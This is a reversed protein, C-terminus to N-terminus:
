FIFEKKLKFCFVLLYFLINDFTQFIEKELLTNEIQEQEILLDKKLSKMAYIEKTPIYEVLSVKGFSGRGIVKIVKFDELKVQKVNKHSSYFTDSQIQPGVVGNQNVEGRASFRVTNFEEITVIHDTKMRTFSPNTKKDKKSTVFNKISKENVLSFKLNTQEINFYAQSIVEMIEKRRHSVYYYDYESEIGHIIFEDTM